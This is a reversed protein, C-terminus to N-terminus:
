RDFKRLDLRPDWREDSAAIKEWSLEKGGYAATRGLIASLASEAGQDAENIFRGSRISEILAKDKNADADELASKFSGTAWDKSSVAQDKRAVGSDWENEGKIFVGGTYHSESIGKTGFFRECVDGLGPDFQTSQVTVNVGNPYEFNVNYHSWANGQDSRGRRGGRGAAKLPHARLVWNCVDIIHINQEVLIDGSLHRDWVWHRLRLEDASAGPYDPLKIAGAFYYAQASVIDGIAGDHIRKVLEVFPTAHRIQFGVALSTKNGAIRGAEKVQRCGHPDVAVPKECYVHKGARVAAMLHEPHLFPPSSILVADVEPSALLKQYAQSGRFLNAERLEPQGKARSLKDFHERARDLRDQFLDALAVVQTETNNVFSTAVTTGRGGCGIIGMRVANNAQTGFVLEPRMVTLGVVTTSATKLFDRRDLKKEM